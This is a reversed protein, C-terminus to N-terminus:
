CKVMTLVRQERDDRHGAIPQNGVILKLEKPAVSENM